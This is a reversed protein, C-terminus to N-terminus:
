KGTFEVVLKECADNSARAAPFSARALDTRERVLRLKISAVEIILEKRTSEPVVPFNSPLATRALDTRERVLRLKISAVEIILEKCTSEPVMPLNSPFTAWALDPRKRM